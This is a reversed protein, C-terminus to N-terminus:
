DFSVVEVWAAGKGGPYQGQAKLAGTAHDITYLSITESKEGPVVLFNGKPDIGFGRPQKETPTSALYTLKGTAADVSFSALTSSTRESMYAFRGDPTMRIDSAWIDNATDRAPQDASGAAGRPFGPVMKTDAPLGRTSSVEKLQGSTNDLAFTTITGTMETVAFLYRNDPSTLFHRPGTNPKLLLLPPTNATLRGSQPDFHFQFIQDSGLTPVYVFKNSADVRISHANRGVPVIQLPAESVKGNGDVSNVTVLNGGYSSGFLYRGTKDLSIYAMSEALPASSLRRLAGTAPDIAYSVVSYPKSRVAAFLFKHDPSVAMPMVLSAVKVTPGPELRGTERQVRYTTIDGSEANSVYVFTEALAPMSCALTVCAAAATKKVLGKIDQM